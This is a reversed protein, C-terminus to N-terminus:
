VHVFLPSQQVAFQSEVELVHAGGSLTHLAGPSCHPAGFSHQVPEHTFPAHASLCHTGSLGVAPAHPWGPSQQLPIQVFPFHPLTLAPWVQRVAPLGHEVALSHQEFRQLLPMQEPATENQVCCPSIQEVSKSHQVPFQTFADPLVVPTQPSGRPPPALWHLGLPV